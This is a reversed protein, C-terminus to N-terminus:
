KGIKSNLTEALYNTALVQALQLAWRTQEEHVVVGGMSTQVLEKAYELQERTVAQARALMTQQFANTKAPDKSM